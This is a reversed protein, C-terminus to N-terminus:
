IYGSRVAKCVAQALTICDLKTRAMKLYSRVTHDSLKLIVAIDTYSKGESTLKLCEFERDTLQPNTADGGFAEALALAHLHPLITEFADLRQDMYSKWDEQMMHSNLTLIGARNRHDTYFFCYGSEGLGYRPMDEWIPKIKAQAHLESWCFSEGDSQAKQIVPDDFAFNSLLYHKIWADPYTTRVYPNDMGQRRNSMLLFSTFDHAGSADIRNIAEILSTSEEIERIMVSVHSSTCASARFQNCTACHPSQFADAVQDKM